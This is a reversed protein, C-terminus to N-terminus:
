KEGAGAAVGLLKYIKGTGGRVRERGDKMDMKGMDLIYLAGDPGFKADVPRELEIESERRSGPGEQTNRVFDKVTRDDINVQVVKYGTPGTMRLGGTDFPARDGSLAVIAITGGQRLRSLPGAAPAFDFKSAGSLAKFEATLLNSNPNPPALQSTEHDILFSLDRYGSRVIMEVPPQFQGERIEKLNASYDPWGYWQGHVLRLMVDPDDKVPRTGRLKMGQNTMFLLGQESFGLGVPNRVGHAEIKLDGGSPDVSYIAASAKSNNARPIRTEISKGFAQFPATVAIDTGGFIGAFPNPTDFRRGLLYLDQAPRDCFARHDKLWHMNDIGVVGANTAAGVGFYIRGNPAVAIDTVSYDGEAPLDAIITTHSGDYGFATIMGRDNEDRHTVYIKGNAAVMGGIPGFIQFHAQGPINFPLRAGKPYIEIMEGGPKFGYIRAGRDMGGEAILLNGESDFAIATPGTLGQVYPKLETNPPYEILARDITIQQEPKLLTPGGGCGSLGWLALGVLFLRWHTGCSRFGNGM